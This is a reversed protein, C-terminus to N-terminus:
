KTLREHETDVSSWYIDQMSKSDNVIQKGREIIRYIYRKESILIKELAKKMCLDDLIKKITDYEQTTDSCYLQIDTPSRGNPKNYLYLLIMFIIDQRSHPKEDDKKKTL